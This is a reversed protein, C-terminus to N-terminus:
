VISVIADKPGVVDGEKVHVESIVGSKTALVDNQMKMAELVAVVDGLKVADGKVVSVKLILGQMPATVVGDGRAAKAPAAAATGAPMVSNAFTGYVKVDYAIGDVEVRMERSSEEAPVEAADPEAAQAAPAAAPPPTEPVKDDALREVTTENRCLAKFEAPFMAYATVAADDEPLADRKLERKLADAAPELLDAPRCTIPEERGNVLRRVSANIPHPSAGFLGLCYDKIPQSVTAYRDGDCVNYVAQTAILEPFPTMWPPSGLDERVAAIENEVDELRDIAERKRLEEVAGGMAALPLTNRLAAPDARMAVLDFIDSYLPAIENFYSHLEWLPDLSLGTEYTGGSFGAIIAEAAPFAAGGGLPSACVDVRSVGNELGAHYCLAALGAQAKISLSIPLKCKSTVTKLLQNVRAPSLSGLPDHLCVTDAGEKGMEAALVAVSEPESDAGAVIVGEVKLKNRHAAAFPVRLNRVDNLPDYLRIWDVGCGALVKAFTEIVDDAVHRHGLLSQGGSWAAIPTSSAAKRMAKLREYPNEALFRLQAEFTAGGFVELVSFGCKDLLQAVRVAHRERLRSFLLTQQGDRLSSELLQVTM